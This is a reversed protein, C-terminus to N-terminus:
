KIAVESTNSGASEAELDTARLVTSFVGKGHASSVRYRGDMVEGVQFVYYGEVDDWSDRLGTTAHAVGVGDVDKGDPSDSFMDLEEEVKRGVEGGDDEAVREDMVEELKFARAKTHDEQDYKEAIKRRKRRRAEIWAEEDLEREGGADEVISPSRGGDSDAELEGEELDSARDRTAM